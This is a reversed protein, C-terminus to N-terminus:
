SIGLEEALDIIRPPCQFTDVKPDYSLDMLCKIIAELDEKHLHVVEVTEQPPIAEQPIEVTGVLM